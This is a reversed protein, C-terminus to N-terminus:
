TTVSSFYRLLLPLALSPVTSSPSWNLRGPLPPLHRRFALAMPQWRPSDRDQPIGVLDASRCAVRASGSDDECRRAGAAPAAATGAVSVSAQIPTVAAIAARVPSSDNEKPDAVTPGRRNDTSMRSHDSRNGPVAQLPRSCGIPARRHTGRLDYGGPTQGEM